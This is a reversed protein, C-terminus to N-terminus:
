RFMLQNLAVADKDNIVQQGYHYANESWRDYAEQGMHVFTELANVFAAPTSLPLDFGVQRHALDQWPTQDSILVPCGSTFSELIIHGFNEGRTPMWLAHNQNLTAVVENTKLSGKYTANITSPLRKMLEQCAEWYAVDYVPGYIDFSIRGSHQWGALVELAYLLNKEPSIRAINVLKLEGATKARRSNAHADTVKPLNPAVLVTAESDIAQLIAQKEGEHTAHFIIGKYLRLRKAISLFLKKRHRKVNIASSALMGRASVIIHPHQQRKLIYLPLISFYLSYIGNIYAIDPAVSRIVQHLNRFTLKGASFYYVQIHADLTNWADSTIGQYPLTECYDTDRTIIYFDIEEKLHAVLNACSQVPGGAKYGPVFWDVTLLVKKKMM